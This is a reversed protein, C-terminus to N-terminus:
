PTAITLKGNVVPNRDHECGIPIMRDVDTVHDYRILVKWPHVFRGPDDITMDDQLTNADIRTLRETFHAGASLDAVNVGIPFIPGAKRAITDVVLTTGEWHGISDGLGTPWLDEQKPHSRGDTFIHRADGSQTLLLTEEPTVLLQFLGNDPTPDEMIAPFSAFGGCAKTFPHAKRAAIGARTEWEPNYPPKGGLKLFAGFFAAEPSPANAAPPKPDAHPAGPVPKFLDGTVVGTAVKTEWYGSWDPLTAFAHARQASHEQPYAPYITLALVLAAVSKGNM